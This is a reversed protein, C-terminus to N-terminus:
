PIDKALAASRSAQRIEEKSQPGCRVLRFVIREGIPKGRLRQTVGCIKISISIAPVLGPSAHLRPLYRRLGTIRNTRSTDPCRQEVRRKCLPSSILGDQKGIIGEGSSPTSSTSTHFCADVEVIHVAESRLYITSANRLANM